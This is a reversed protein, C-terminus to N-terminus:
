DLTLRGPETIRIQPPGDVNDPAVTVSVGFELPTGNQVFALLRDPLGATDTVTPRRLLATAAVSAQAALQNRSQQSREAILDILGRDQIRANTTVIGPRAPVPLRLGAHSFNLNDFSHYSQWDLINQVPLTMDANLVNDGHRQHMVFEPITIPPINRAPSDPIASTDLVLNRVRIESVDNRSELTLNAFRLTTGVELNLVEARTIDFFNSQGESGFSFTENRIMAVSRVINIQDIHIAEVRGSEQPKNPREFQIAGFRIDRLYDESFRGSISGFTVIGGDENPVRAQEAEFTVGDMLAMIQGANRPSAAPIADLREVPLNRVTIIGLRGGDSIQVDSFMTRSIKGDAFDAEIRRITTGSTPEELRDIALRVGNMLAMAQTVTRPPTGFLANLRAQELGDITITEAKQTSSGTGATVNHGVLQLAAGNRVIDASDVNLVLQGNQHGTIGRLTIRGDQQPTREAWDLVFGNHDRGKQADIQTIIAEDILQGSAYVAGTTIGTAVLAAASLLITKKSLTM